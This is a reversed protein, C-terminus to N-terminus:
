SDLPLRSPVLRVVRFGLYNSRNRPARYSRAAHAFGRIYFWSSGRVVRPRESRVDDGKRGRPTLTWEWINGSMDLAGCAARGAPYMGVATTRSLGSEATNAFRGDWDKGWPYGQASPGVAAFQWEAATPLRVAWTFRNLVSPPDKPVELRWSLWRCFAMAEYWNVTERPHNPFKFHQDGLRADGGDAALGGLWNMERNHYGDPAEIFAQFQTFTV